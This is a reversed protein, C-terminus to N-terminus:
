TSVSDIIRKTQTHTCAQLDTNRDHDHLRICIRISDNIRVTYTHMGALTQGCSWQKMHTCQMIIPSIIATPQICFVKNRQVQTTYENM